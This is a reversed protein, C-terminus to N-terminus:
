GNMLNLYKSAITKALYPKILEKNLPLDKIDKSIFDLLDNIQEDNIESTLELNLIPIKNQLFQKTSDEETSIINVLPKNYYLFEVVKSPLHYTTTNGFNLLMDYAGIHDSIEEHSIFGHYKVIPNLDDFMLFIPKSFKNLEGYFHFQFPELKSKDKKYIHSLLKLFRFPSRVGEYFNGFYVLHKKSADLSLEYSREKKVPKSFLPPIVNFKNENASFMEDYIAKVNENTFSVANALNLCETEEEINKIAYKSFNNVWFTDSISFPDEVDMVWNLKPFSQKAKKAILHCTFPLGVSIVHTIEDSSIVDLVKGQGPKLFLVSGDPWYRRRWFKDIVKEIKRAFWGMPKIESGHAMNRRKKFSLKNYLFDLLTNHGVRYIKINSVQDFQNSETWKTTLVSVKYGSQLFCDIIASWRITNPTQAPLFPTIIILINM